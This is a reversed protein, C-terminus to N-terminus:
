FINEIPYFNYFRKCIELEYSASNMFLVSKSEVGELLKLLVIKVLGMGTVKFLLTQSMANKESLVFM